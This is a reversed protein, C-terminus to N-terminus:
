MWTPNSTRVATVTLLSTKQFKNCNLKPIARYKLPVCRRWSWPRLTLCELFWASPPLFSLWRMNSSPLHLYYTRGFRRAWEPTCPAVVCFVASKRCEGKFIAKHPLSCRTNVHDMKLTSTILTLSCTILCYNTNGHKGQGRDRDARGPLWVGSKRGRTRELLVLLVHISDRCLEARFISAVHIGFHRWRQGCECPIFVWSCSLYWCIIM